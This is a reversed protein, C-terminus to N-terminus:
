RREEEGVPESATSLVAHGDEYFLVIPKENRLTDVVPGLLALPLHMLIKGSDHHDAPLPMHPAYFHITGLTHHEGALEVRACLGDHAPPGGYFFISYQTVNAM